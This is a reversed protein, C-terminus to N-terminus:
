KRRTERTQRDSLSGPCLRGLNRAIARRLPAARDREAGARRLAVRFHTEADVPFGARQFALALNNRLAAEASAMGVTGALRVALRLFLFADEFRGENLALMGEGNLERLRKGTNM